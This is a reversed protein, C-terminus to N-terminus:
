SLHIEKFVKVRDRYLSDRELKYELSYVDPLKCWFRSNRAPKDGCAPIFLKM